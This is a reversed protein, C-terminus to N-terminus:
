WLELALAWSNLGPKEGNDCAQGGGVSRIQRAISLGRWLQGVMCVSGQVGGNNDFKEDFNNSVMIQLLCIQEQLSYM